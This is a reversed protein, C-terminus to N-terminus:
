HVEEPVPVETSDTMTVDAVETAPTGNAIPTPEAEAVQPVADPTPETMNSYVSSFESSKPADIAHSTLPEIQNRPEDTPRHPQVTVSKLARHHLEASTVM